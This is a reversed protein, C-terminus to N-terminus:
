DPRSVLGLRGVGRGRPARMWGRGFLSGLAFGTVVSVAFWSGVVIGIWELANV